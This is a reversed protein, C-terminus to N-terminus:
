LSHRACAVICLGEGGWACMCPLRDLVRRILFGSSTGPEPTRWAHLGSYMGGLCGTVRVCMYLFVSVCLRGHVCECPRFGGQARQRARTRAPGPAGAHYKKPDCDGGGRLEAGAPRRGPERWRKGRRHPAWGPVPLLPACQGRSLRCSPTLGRLRPSSAPQNRIGRPVQSFLLFKFCCHAVGGRWAPWCVCGGGAWPFALGPAPGPAM